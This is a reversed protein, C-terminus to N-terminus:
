LVLYVKFGCTYIQTVVWHSFTQLLFAKEGPSQTQAVEVAGDHAMDEFESDSRPSQLTRKQLNKSSSILACFSAVAKLSLAQCPWKRAWHCRCPGRHAQGLSSWLAFQALRAPLFEPLWAVCFCFDFCDAQQFGWTTRQFCSWPFVNWMACKESWTVWTTVTGFCFSWQSGCLQFYVQWLFLAKWFLSGSACSEPHSPCVRDRQTGCCRKDLRKKFRLCTQLNHLRCVQWLRVYLLWLKKRERNVISHALKRKAHHWWSNLCSLKGRLYTSPHKVFNCVSLRLSYNM